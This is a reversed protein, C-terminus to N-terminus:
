SAGSGETDGSRLLEWAERPSHIPLPARDGLVLLDRDGTVLVDARGAVAEALIARDAPDRVKVRLLRDSHVVEGERRLYAELEAVLKTAKQLKQTLVRRLEALVAEGVLLQHHALVVELLDACLGRTAFASVLVNTDLYVRM